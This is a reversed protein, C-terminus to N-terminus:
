QLECFCKLSAAHAFKTSFLNLFLFWLDLLHSLVDALSIIRAKANRLGSWGSEYIVLLYYIASINSEYILM